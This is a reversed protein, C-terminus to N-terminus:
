YCILMLKSYGNIKQNILKEHAKFDKNNKAYLFIKYKGYDFEQNSLNHFMITILIKTNPRM